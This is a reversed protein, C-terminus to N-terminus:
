LKETKKKIKMVSFHLLEWFKILEERDVSLDTTSNKCVDM